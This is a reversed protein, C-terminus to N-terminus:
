ERIEKERDGRGIEMITVVNEGGEATQGDRVCVSPTTPPPPPISSCTAGMLFYIPLTKFLSSEGM